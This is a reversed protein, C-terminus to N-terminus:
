LTRCTFFRCFDETSTFIDQSQTSTIQTCHQGVGQPERHNGRHVTGSSLPDWLLSPTVLKQFISRQAGGVTIYIINRMTPLWRLLVPNCDCDICSYLLFAAPVAAPAAMQLIARWMIIHMPTNTTDAEQFAPHCM